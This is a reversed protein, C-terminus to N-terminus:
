SAELPLTEPTPLEATEAVAVPQALRGAQGDAICRVTLRCPLPPRPFSVLVEGTAGGATAVPSTTDMAEGDGAAFVEVAAPAREGVIRQISCGLRLQGDALRDVSLDTPVPLPQEAASGDPATRLCLRAQLSHEEVGDASVSRGVLTYETGPTLPVPLELTEQDAPVFAAPATFDIEAVGGPALYINTGTQNPNPESM